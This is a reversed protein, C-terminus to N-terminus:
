DETLLFRDLLKEYDALERLLALILPADGAAPM